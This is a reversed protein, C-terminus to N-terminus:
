DAVLRIVLDPYQKQLENKLGIVHGAGVVVVSKTYNHVTLQSVINQAMRENREDWYRTALTCAENQHLVYRFSNLQHMRQLSALKNTHKGLRGLLAPLISRNYDQKNLKNNLKNDGNSAGAKLCARWALHYEKNTQQDDMNFLTRIGLRLALKYSLDEDENRLPKKSGKIGYQKVYRYFEYNAYNRMYAFSTILTDLEQQNLAATEKRLLAELITSSFQHHKKLSDSLRYFQKYADSWGDKLYTWSIEDNPMPREIYIAEPRYKLAVKLLPKYSHKVIKPVVHMTGIILVEKKLNQAFATAMTLFVIFFLSVRM